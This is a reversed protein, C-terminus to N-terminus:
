PHLLAEQRPRIRRLERFTEEIKDFHNAEPGFHSFTTNGKAEEQKVRERFEVRGLSHM